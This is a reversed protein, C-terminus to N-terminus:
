KWYDAHQRHQLLKPLQTKTVTQKPASNKQWGKSTDISSSSSSSSLPKKRERRPLLIKNTRSDLFHFDCLKQKTLPVSKSRSPYQNLCKCKSKDQNDLYQLKLKKMRILDLERKVQRQNFNFDRLWLRENRELREKEVVYKGYINRNQRQISPLDLWFTKGEEMMEKKIGNKEVSFVALWM